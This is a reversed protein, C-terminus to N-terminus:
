PTKRGAKRSETPDARRVPAPEDDFPGVQRDNFLRYRHKPDQRPTGFEEIKPAFYVEQGKHRVWLDHDTFRAAAFQWVAEAGPSPRRAELVLMAEPDTGASTVFSFLAGDIVDPDSSQYRYLPQPLLRLEWRKGDRDLTSASFERTLSRMQVLRQAASSAPKPAGPSPALDIGPGEPTWTNEGEARTVDLVTPALSHLEHIIAVPGSAPQTFFSAVVEARGRCTWVFVAGDQGGQRLPNTWIYVPELRLVARDRRSSDLYITYAAAESRYLEQLRERRAKSAPPASERAPPAQAPLAPLLTALLASALSGSM